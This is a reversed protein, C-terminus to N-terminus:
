QCDECWVRSCVLLDDVHQLGALLQDVPLSDVDVGTEARTKPSTHLKHVFAGSDVLTAPESHSGGMPWGTSRHVLADGVAM